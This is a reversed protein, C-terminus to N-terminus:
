ILADLDLEGGTCPMTIGWNELVEPHIEGFVGISKGRYLVAAARGPIFRSDNSEEV